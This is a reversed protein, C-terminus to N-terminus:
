EGKWTVMDAIHLQGCGYGIVFGVILGSRLNFAPKVQLANAGNKAMVILLLLDVVEDYFRLFTAFALQEVSAAEEKDRDLSYVLFPAVLLCLKEGVEEYVLRVELM